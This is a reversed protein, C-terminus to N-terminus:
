SGRGAALKALAAYCARAETIFKEITEYPRGVEGGCSSLTERDPARKTPSSKRYYDQFDPRSSLTSENQALHDSLMAVLDDKLMKEDSCNDIPTHVVAGVFKRKPM